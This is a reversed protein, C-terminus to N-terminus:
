RAAETDPAPVTHQAAIASLQNFRDWGLTRRLYDDHREVSKEWLEQYEPSTVSPANVATLADSFDQQAQHIAKEEATDPIVIDEPISFVVPQKVTIKPIFHAFSKESTEFLEAPAESASAPVDEDRPGTVTQPSTPNFKPHATRMSSRLFLERNAPGVPIALAAPVNSASTGHVVRPTSRDTVGSRSATKKLSISVTGTEAPPQQAEWASKKQLMPICIATICILAVSWEVQAKLKRHM